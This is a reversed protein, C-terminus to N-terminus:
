YLLLTVIYFSLGNIKYKKKTGDRLMSGEVWDGPIILWCIYCYFIWGFYAVAAQNDWLGKWWEPSQLARTM